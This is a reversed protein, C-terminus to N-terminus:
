SAKSERQPAGWQPTEGTASSQSVPHGPTAPAIGQYKQSSAQMAQHELIDVLVLNM